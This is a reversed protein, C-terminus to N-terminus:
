EFGERFEEPRKQYSIFEDATPIYYGNKEAVKVAEKGFKDSYLKAMAMTLPTGKVVNKGVDKKLESIGKELEELEKLRFTTRQVIHKQLPKIADHARKDIDKREYGFTKNDEDTLRDFEQLYAKDMASEAELMEQMSLNAEDTQGAKPIMSSIRKEMYQNQAKASIRSLTPLLQEKAALTLQAGSKNRLADGIVGGISDALANISFAGTEGSEIANRAYNLAQEQRPLNERIKDSKEVHKKSYSTHFDRESEFTKREIDESKRKERIATDKAARLERALNPDLASARAIDEDSLQSPDFGQQLGQEQRKDGQIGSQQMLGQEEERPQGSGGFIQNLFGQRQGLLKEKGQGRLLETAIAKQTDPDLGSLDVGTLREINEDALRQQQNKQKTLQAQQYGQSIGSGLGRGIVTGFTEREAKPLFTVM